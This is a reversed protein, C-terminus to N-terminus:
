TALPVQFSARRCAASVEDELLGAFLFREDVLDQPVKRTYRHVKRWILNLCAVLSDPIHNGCLGVLGDLFSEDSFQHLQRICCHTEASKGAFCIFRQYDASKHHYHSERICCAADLTSTSEEGSLILTSELIRLVFTEAQVEM